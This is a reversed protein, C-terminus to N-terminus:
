ASKEQDPASADNGLNSAAGAIRQRLEPSVRGAIALAVVSGIIGGAILGAAFGASPTRQEVADSLVTNTM